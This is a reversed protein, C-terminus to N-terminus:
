NIRRDRELDSIARDIGYASILRDATARDGNLMRLLKRYQANYAKANSTSPSMGKARMRNALDRDYADQRQKLKEARIQEQSKRKPYKKQIDELTPVKKDPKSKPRLWFYLAVVM